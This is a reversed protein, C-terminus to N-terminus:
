CHGARVSRCRHLVEPSACRDKIEDAIAISTSARMGIQTARGAYGLRLNRSFMQRPGDVRKAFEACARIKFPRFGRQAIMLLGRGLLCTALIRRNLEYGHPEGFGDSRASQQQPFQGCDNTLFGSRISNDHKLRVFFLFVSGNHSM